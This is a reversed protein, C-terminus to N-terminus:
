NRGRSTRPVAAKMEADALAVRLREVDAQSKPLNAKAQEIQTQFLSPDLRAIVQGKHVISNFDANLM